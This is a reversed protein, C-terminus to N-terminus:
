SQAPLNSISISQVVLQQCLGRHQKYSQVLYASRNSFINMMPLFAFDANPLAEVLPTTGVTCNYGEAYLHHAIGMATYFAIGIYLIALVFAYWILKWKQM